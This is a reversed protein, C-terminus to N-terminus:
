NTRPLRRLDRYRGLLAWTNFAAEVQIRFSMKSQGCTREAFYIPIETFRFGLRHAVYAMEVQFVYGNSRVRDLPIAQLTERRWLRFGGTVDQVPLSLITRAYFNGFASLRKRWLPWDDDLRGGPVYRSGIAVDVHKLAQALLPITDIPHSFDADMQGIMEAGMDLACKFGQIYATGLGMKGPRHLVQVRGDYKQGLEEALQGTGDPSNDDVILMGLGDMPLALVSAVLRPLNEVENYTPVIIVTKM